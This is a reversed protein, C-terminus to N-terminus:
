SPERRTVPASVFDRRAIQMVAAVIQDPNADDTGMRVVDLGLSEAAVVVVELEARQQAVAALADSMPSNKVAHTKGRMRIREVLDRDPADLVLVADLQNAWSEMERKLWRDDTLDPRAALLRSLTYLPGQDLVLIDDDARRALSGLAVLRGIWALQRRPPEGAGSSEAGSSRSCGRPRM